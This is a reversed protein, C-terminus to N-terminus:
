IFPDVIIKLPSNWSGRLSVSAVGLIVHVIVCVEFDEDLENLFFSQDLKPILSLREIRSGINFSIRRRKKEKPTSIQITTEHEPLDAKM